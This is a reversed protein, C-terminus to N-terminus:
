KISHHCWLSKEPYSLLKVVAMAEEYSNTVLTIVILSIKM